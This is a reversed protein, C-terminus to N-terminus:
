LNLMTSRSIATIAIKTRMIANRRAMRMTVGDRVNTVVTSAPKPQILATIRGEAVTVVMGTWVVKEKVDEDDEVV